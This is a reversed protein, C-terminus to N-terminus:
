VFVVAFVFSARNSGTQSEKRKLPCSKHDSDSQSQAEGVCGM